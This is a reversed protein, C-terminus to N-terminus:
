SQHKRKNRESMMRKWAEPKPRRAAARLAEKTAPHAPRGRKSAAMREIVEPTAAAERGRAAVDETLKEPKYDRYLRATGENIQPVGLAKRWKWVTVLSVGWHHAVALESECRVAQVLNGCLILSPKGTKMARPWPVPADTLGGVRVDADRYECHLVDGRRAAPPAYPGHLLKYRDADIM